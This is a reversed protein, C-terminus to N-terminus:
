RRVSNVRGMLRQKGKFARPQMQISVVGERSHESLFCAGVQTQLSLPALQDQRRNPSRVPLQASFALSVLDKWVRDTLSDERCVTRGQNELGSAAGHEGPAGQEERHQCWIHDTGILPLAASIFACGSQEGEELDEACLESRARCSACRGAAAALQGPSQAEKIFLTFLRYVSVWVSVSNKGLANGELFNLLVCDDDLGRVHLSVKVVAERVCGCGDDHHCVHIVVWWFEGRASHTGPVGCPGRSRSDTTPKQGQRRHTSSSPLYSRLLPRAIPAWAPAVGRLSTCYSPASARWPAPRKPSPPLPSPSKELIVCHRRCEATTPGELAGLVSLQATKRCRSSSAPSAPGQRSASTEAVKSPMRTAAHPPGTPAAGIAWLQGEM